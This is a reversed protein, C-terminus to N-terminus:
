RGVGLSGCCGGVWLGLGVRGDVWPMWGCCGGGRLGLGVGGGVARRGGMCVAGFM